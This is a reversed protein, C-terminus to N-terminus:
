IFFIVVITPDVLGNEMIVYLKGHIEKVMLVLYAILSFKPEVKMAERRRMCM